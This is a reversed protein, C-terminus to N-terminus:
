HLLIKLAQWLLLKQQFIGKSSQNDTKIDILDFQNENPYIPFFVVYIATQRM